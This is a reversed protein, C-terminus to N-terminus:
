QQERKLAHQKIQWRTPLWAEDNALTDCRQDVWCTLSFGRDATCDRGTDLSCVSCIIFGTHRVVHTVQQDWRFCTNRHKCFHPHTTSSLRTSGPGDVAVSSVSHFDCRACFNSRILTRLIFSHLSIPCGTQVTSIHHSLVVSAIKLPATHASVHQQAGFTCHKWLLTLDVDEGDREFFGTRRRKRQRSGCNCTATAASAPSGARM